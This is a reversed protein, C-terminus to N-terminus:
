YLKENLKEKKKIIQKPKKYKKKNEEQELAIYRDELTYYDDWLDTNIYTFRTWKKKYEEDEEVYYKYDYDYYEPDDYKEDKFLQRTKRLEQFDISAFDWNLDKIKELFDKSPKVLVAVYKSSKKDTSLLKKLKEFKVYRKSKNYNVIFGVFHPPNPHSLIFNLTIEDKVGCIKAEM